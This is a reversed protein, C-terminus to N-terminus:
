EARLADSPPVRAARRAPGLSAATAILLIAAAVATFILPDTPSVEFLLARLLRTGAFAGALGLLIGILALRASQMMVMQTVQSVRAGLAMRVGIEVRRQSVIYSVVGYLGVASLLTAIGAALGILLLIFSLRATSGRVVADMPTPNAFAVRDDLEAVAQRILPTLHALAPGHSKVIYTVGRMPNWAVDPRAGTPPYFVAETAPQDLGSGHLGSATGVIRYVPAGPQSGNSNIGKGIPDQGPWLREALEATVVAIGRGPQVDSWEPARGEVAIGLAAFFGPTVQATAVCPPEEGNRFPEGPRFVVSCSAAMDRLPLETTAGVAGVGPLAALRDQLQRHFAAAAEATPYRDNPLALMFTFAGSSDFGPEVDLLQTFSRVMLGAGTLLVLALAVQTVVLAGRVARQGRSASTGRAGERIRWPGGVGRIISILGFAIGSALSLALALMVSSFTLGVGSLRPIDAPALRVLIRLGAAAIGVAAIGALTALLLTEALAHGALRTRPAGLAARIAVERARLEARVLFLNGVNAFAIVFVLAVAGLIVWLMQPIRPGLVADRLPEVAMGFRYDTMFAPSYASPHEDPLRATLAALDRQADDVAMGSALRAIGNFPHSNVARAAPDLQLPMWLDIRFGALDSGSAFAAPRPLNFRPSTVGVVTARGSSLEIERGIIGPDGGFRRQWLEHGLMVVAPANPVDEDPLFLRGAVPSTGLISLLNHTVLAVQAVEAAGGDGTITADSTGYVGIDSLTRNERAFFFYGASSLGWKADGSGPITTPHMVSVLREPEPYPLPRLVVADVIAYVATTASVGVALTVLAIITFVPSRLLARAAQRAERRLSDLLEIRDRHRLSEQDYAATQRRYQDVDGFRRRAEAYAQERSMGEGMLEEVRGELHFAFEEDVTESIRAQSAPLRFVRRPARSSDSM